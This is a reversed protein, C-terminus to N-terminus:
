NKLLLQRKFGVVKPSYLHNVEINRAGKESLFKVIMFLLPLRHCTNVNKETCLLLVNLTELKEMARWLKRMGREFVPIPLDYNEPKLWKNNGFESIWVYNNMKKELNHKNILGYPKSRVDVIVHSEGVRSIKDIIEHEDQLYSFAGYGITSIKFM